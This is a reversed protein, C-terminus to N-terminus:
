HKPLFIRSSRVKDQSKTASRLQLALQRIYTFALQYVTASSILFLETASNKMLNLAPM